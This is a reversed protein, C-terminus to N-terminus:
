GFTYTILVCDASVVTGTATTLNTKNCGATALDAAFTTGINASNGKVRRVTLDTAMFM